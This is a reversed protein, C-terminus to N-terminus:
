DRLSGMQKAITRAALKPSLRSLRDMAGADRAGQALLQLTVERAIGNGAGTVVFVKGSIDM